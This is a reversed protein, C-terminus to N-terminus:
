GAGFTGRMEMPQLMLWLGMAFLGTALAAWPLFGRRARASEGYQEQAVRYAAVLSGLLGAELCLMEIPLLWAAPVLPGLAWNPVGLVPWGLDALFSQAVPVVTLAGTLFHFGYHALWMGFGVPVLAYGFRAAVVSLPARSGALSRSALAAGGIALVPAVVLGLTFLVLLVLRSDGTGLLRALWREVDYVPAVMGLANVFAGFIVVSALAAIDGREGLRGVNARPPDRWVESTPPRALVGVNDYPCAHICDLCFTCDVNGAKKEQFLWLECGGHRARSGAARPVAAPEESPWGDRRGQGGVQGAICDKSSCAACLARDRVAVELPSALSNVFHFQGIPCLYKCFAAGRFLGDVVFAVVFYSLALWATLWPSAWLDFAEYGWFFAILLATALWKSRLRRPWHRAAPLWRKALGRPLMFPCAACFLNGAFLLALVILGRWQVWPLVGALNKPALQPGFFGDFLVLGALLFLPWQLAARAYRWRLFRGVLPVRLLDLTRQQPVGAGSERKDTKVM